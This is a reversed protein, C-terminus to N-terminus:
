HEDVRNEPPSPPSPSSVLYMTSRCRKEFRLNVEEGRREGEFPV